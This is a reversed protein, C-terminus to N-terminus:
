GHYLHVGATIEFAEEGCPCACDQLEADDLYGVSDGIPHALSCTSKTCVRVAAGADEDLRLRFTRGGCACVADAFQSPIYTSLTGVRILEDRIDAQSDGYWWDGRKRLAM